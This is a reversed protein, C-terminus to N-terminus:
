EGMDVNHLSEFIDSSRMNGYFGEKKYRHYSSWPWDTVDDVLKHKVPNFHIYDIHTRLDAEDRIFHEWFRRQWIAVEGRKSRSTDPIDLGDYQRRFRKSFYKKIESWRVSYNEDGEPLTWICHLHDPLLCIADMTFPHRSIVSTFAERLLSRSEPLTLFPKRHYTVVTFFYTGGKM